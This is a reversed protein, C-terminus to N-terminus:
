CGRLLHVLFGQIFPSFLKLVSAPEVLPTPVALYLADAHPQGAQQGGAEGV